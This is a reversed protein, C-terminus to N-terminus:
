KKGKQTHKLFEKDQNKWRTHTDALWKDREAKSEGVAKSRNAIKGLVEGTASARSGSDRNTGKRYVTKAGGVADTYTDFESNNLSAKNRKIPGAM